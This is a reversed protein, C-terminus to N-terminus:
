GKPIYKFLISHLTFLTKLWLTFSSVKLLIKTYITIELNQNIFTCLQVVMAKFPAMVMPYNQLSSKLSLIKPICDINHQNNNLCPNQTANEKMTPSHSIMEM